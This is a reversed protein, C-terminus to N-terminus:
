CIQKTYPAKARTAYERRQGTVFAPLVKTNLSIRNYTLQFVDHFKVHEWKSQYALIHAFLERSDKLLEKEAPSVARKTNEEFIRTEEKELLQIKGNVLGFMEIPFNGLAAIQARAAAELLEDVGNLEGVPLSLSLSGKVLPPFAIGKIYSLTDVNYDCLRYLQQNSFPEDLGLGEWAVRVADLVGAFAQARKLQTEVRQYNVFFIDDNTEPLETKEQKM